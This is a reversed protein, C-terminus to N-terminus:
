IFCKYLLIIILTFVDFCKIIERIELYFIQIFHTNNLFDGFLHKFFLNATASIKYHIAFGM